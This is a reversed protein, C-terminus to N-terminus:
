QLPLTFYFTSGKGKTSEVWITGGHLEVLEKAISLGLGTGGFERGDHKDVQYFREFIHPIEHRDIGIGQDAVSFVVLNLKEDYRAGLTITESEHSFKIANGVLNFLVQSLRDKDAYVRPVGQGARVELKLGSSYLREAFVEEMGRLEKAPDLYTRRLEIRGADIRSLSLLDSILNQLNRGRRLVIELSNKQDETLPGLVGELMMSVYGLVSTLPTRLEHSVTSLFTDKVENAKQLNINSELLQQNVKELERSYMELDSHMSRLRRSYDEVQQKSELMQEMSRNLREGMENFATALEAIEDDGPIDIRYLLNGRGIEEAGHRLKTIPETIRRTLVVGLAAAVAIGTLILVFSELLVQRTSRSIPLTSTKLEFIGVPDGNSDQLPLYGAIEKRINYKHIKQAGGWQSAETFLGEPLEGDWEPDSSNVLGREIYLSALGRTREHIDGLLMKDRNLLYGVTIAGVVQRGRPDSQFTPPAELREFLLVPITAELVLGSDKRPNGAPEAILGNCWMDEPSLVEFSVTEEGELARRIEPVDSMDDGTSYVAQSRFLVIGNADTVTLYSLDSTTFGRLFHKVRIRLTEGVRSSVLKSLYIDRSLSRGIRLLTEQKNNFLLNAIELDSEMKSLAEDYIRKSLFNLSFLAPIIMAVAVVFIIARIMRPGFTAKGQKM